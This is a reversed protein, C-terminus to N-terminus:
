LDKVGVERLAGALARRTLVAAVRLRYSAPARVDSIPSISELVARAAEEVAEGAPPRGALKEEARRCRLPTPAVSGLAVRVAALAGREDLEVTAAANVQAIVVESRRGIKQFCGGRDLAEGPIRFEVVLEGPALVTKKPGLFFRDLPVSRSGAASRVEAVADLSLLPPITDGAPSANCVNGGVTAVNRVQPTGVQRCASRLVPPVLPHAELDVLRCAAGIRLGDADREVRRLEELCSIDVLLSPRVLRDRMLLVLDTGGALPRAGPEGLAELAEQLSRPRLYLPAKM